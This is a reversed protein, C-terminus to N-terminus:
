RICDFRQLIPIGQLCVGRSFLYKTCVSCHKCNHSGMVELLTLPHDPMCSKIGKLSSSQPVLPSSTLPSTCPLWYNYIIDLGGIFLCTLHCLHIHIPCTSHISLLPRVTPVHAGSPLSVCCSPPGLSVLLLAISLSCLLIIPKFEQAPAPSFTCYGVPHSPPACNGARNEM